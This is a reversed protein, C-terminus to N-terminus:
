GVTVGSKVFPHVVCYYDYRGPERFTHEYADGRGLEESELPGGPGESTVTHLARDENVWRVTTGPPVKIPGPLYELVRIKVEVVRQETGGKPGERAARERAAKERAANEATQEPAPTTEERTMKEPRATATAEERHQPRSSKSSGDEPPSECSAALLFESILLPVKFRVLKM